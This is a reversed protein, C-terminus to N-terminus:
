PRTAVKVTVVICTSFFSLIELHLSKVWCHSKLIIYAAIAAVFGPLFRGMSKGERARGTQYKM